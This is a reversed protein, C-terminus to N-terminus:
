EGVRRSDPESQLHPAQPGPPLFRPPAERFSAEVSRVGRDILSVQVHAPVESSVMREIERADMGDAAPAAELRPRRRRNEPPRVLRAQPTFMNSRAASMRRQRSAPSGTLSRGHEREKQIAEQAPEEAQEDARADIIPFQLDGHQAM